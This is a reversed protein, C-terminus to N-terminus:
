LLIDHLVCVTFLMLIRTTTTTTTTTTTAAAAAAASTAAAYTSDWCTHLQKEVAVVTARVRRIKANYM